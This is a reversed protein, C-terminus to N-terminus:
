VPVPQDYGLQALAKRIHEPEIIVPEGVLELLEGRLVNQRKLSAAASDFDRKQVCQEKEHQLRDLEARIKHCDQPLVARLIADALASPLLNHLFRALPKDRNTCEQALWHLYAFTPAPVRVPLSDDDNLSSACDILMTSMM